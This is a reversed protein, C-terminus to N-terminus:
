RRNVVYAAGTSSNDYLVRNPALQTVKCVTGNHKWQFFVTEGDVKIFDALLGYGEGLWQIQSGTVTFLNGLNDNYWTGTLWSPISSSQSMGSSSSTSSGDVEDIWFELTQYYGIKSDPKYYDNVKDESNPSITIEFRKETKWCKYDCCCQCFEVKIIGSVKITSNTKNTIYLHKPKMDQGCNTTSNYGPTRLQATIKSDSYFTRYQQANASIGFGIVALLIVLFKNIRSTHSKSSRGHKLITDAEMAGSQNAGVVNTRCFFQNM